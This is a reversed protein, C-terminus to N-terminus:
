QNEVAKYAERKARVIERQKEVNKNAGSLSNEAKTKGKMNKEIDKASSEVTKQYGGLSKQYSDLKKQEKERSKLADKVASDSNDPNISASYEKILNNSTEIKVKTDEINTTAERNKQQAKDLNKNYSDLSKQYGAAKKEYSALKKEEKSMEKGLKSLIADRNKATLDNAFVKLMNSATPYLAPAQSSTIFANAGLSFAVVVNVDTSGKSQSINAFVDIPNESIAPIIVNDITILNKKATLTEPNYGKMMNTFEKIVTKADTFMVKTAMSPYSAKGFVGTTEVVDVRQAYIAASLVLAVVIMLFRKM